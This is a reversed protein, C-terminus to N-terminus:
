SAGCFRGSAGSLVEKEALKTEDKRVTMLWRDDDDGGDGNAVGSCAEFVVCIKRSGAKMHNNNNTQRAAIAVSISRTLLICM